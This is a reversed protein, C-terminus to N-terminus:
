QASITPRAQGRKRWGCLALGAAGCLALVLTSPEPVTAIWAEIYGDPNRGYGVITKGDASVGEASYLKWGDLNSVGHNTLVDQVRILGDSATWIIANAPPTPPAAYINGDNSSGVIVAGDASVAHASCVIDGWLPLGLGM